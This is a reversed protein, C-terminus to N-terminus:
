GFLEFNKYEKISTCSSVPNKSCNSIVLAALLFIFAFENNCIINM